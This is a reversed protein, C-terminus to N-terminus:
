MYTVKMDEACFMKLLNTHLTDLGEATFMSTDVCHVLAAACVTM